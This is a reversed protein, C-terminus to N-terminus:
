QVRTVSFSTAKPCNTADRAWLEYPPEATVCPTYEVQLVGQVSEHFAEDRYNDSRIVIFDVGAKLCQLIESGYRPLVHSYQFFFRCRLTSETPINSSDILRGGVDLFALSSRNPITGLTMFPEGQDNLYTWRKLDAAIFSWGEVRLVQSVGMALPAVFLVGTVACILRHTLAAKSWLVAVIVSSFSLAPGLLYQYHQYRPPFQAALAAASGIILVGNLVLPASASRLRIRDGNRTAIFYLALLGGFSTLSVAAFNTTVSGPDLFDAFAAVDLPSPMSMRRIAGYERNYSIIDLWGRLAGQAGAIVLLTAAGLGFGAVLRPTSHVRLNSVCRRKQSGMILYVVAVATFLLLGSIKVSSSTAFAVGAAFPYRLLLGVALVSIAIAYNETYTALYSPAFVYTLAAVSAIVMAKRWSAVSRANLFVGITFTMAALFGSIYLGPIGLARYFPNTITFFGWDKHDWVGEYLPVGRSMWEHVFIWVAIDGREPGFGATRAFVTLCSLTVVFVVIANKNRTTGSTEKPTTRNM